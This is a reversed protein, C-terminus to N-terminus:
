GGSSPSDGAIPFTQGSISRAQDSARFVALRRIARPDVCRKVSPNALAEKAVEEISTGTGSSSGCAASRRVSPVAMFPM